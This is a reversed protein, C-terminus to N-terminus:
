VLRELYTPQNEYWSQWVARSQRSYNLLNRHQIYGRLCRYLHGLWGRHPLAEHLARVMSRNDTPDASWAEPLWDIEKSYVVPVNAVVSDATVINFTESFSVQMVADMNSCLEIFQGHGYWPHEILKSGDKRAAFLNRLNKLIPDGGSEVRETNVHFRLPLKRQAAFELAAMAQPLHNKLPRIAGFCGINLAHSEVKHRHASAYAAAAEEADYWNPLYEIHQTNTELSTRLDHYAKKSNCAVTINRELYARIWEIAIGEQALFPANSHNRVVWKVRPHLRMLEDFKSPTVWFAEIICVNCGSQTVLRDICNGDVAQVLDVVAGLSKLMDVVFRASNWLGSSLGGGYTHGYNDRRKVIFLVNPKRSNM